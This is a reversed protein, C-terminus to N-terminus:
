VRGVIIRTFGALDKYTEIDTFGKAKMLEAMTKMQAPDAEIMLYGGSNIHLPAEDIIIRILDLGDEGGDLALVPEKWGDDVRDQTEEATLYPPNTVIIDFKRDKLSNFLNSHIFNVSNKTLKKNNISFVREAIPSIDTATVDLESCNDKLSIALCGTGTCMDLATKLNYREVRDIAQEVLVESDPRPTLVGDEIHFNLGFFEKEGLIYSVPYGEARKKILQLFREQDTSTVPDPYSAMLLARSINLTSALLINADLRPTDSSKSLLEAGRNLLERINM